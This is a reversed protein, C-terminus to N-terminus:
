KIKKFVCIEENVDPYCDLDVFMFEENGVKKYKGRHRQGNFNNIYFDAKDTSCMSITMKSNQRNFYNIGVSTKLELEDDNEMVYVDKNEQIELINFIPDLGYCADKTKIKGNYNEIESELIQDYMEYKGIYDKNFQKYKQKYKAGLIPSYKECLYQIEKSTYSNQSIRDYIHFKIKETSKEDKPKEYLVLTERYNVLFYWFDRENNKDNTKNSDKLLTFCNSYGFIDKLDTGVNGEGFFLFKPMDKLKKGEKLTDLCDNFDTSTKKYVWKGQILKEEVNFISIEEKKMNEEKFKQLLTINSNIFDVKQQLWEIKEDLNSSSINIIENISFGMEQLFHIDVVKKLSEVDYYRYGNEYNVKAPKLLGVSDYWILAKNSIGTMKSFQGITFM